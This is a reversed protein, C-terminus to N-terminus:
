DIIVYWSTLSLAQIWDKLLINWKAYKTGVCWNAKAIM